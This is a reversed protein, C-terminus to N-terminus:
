LLRLRPRAALVLQLPQHSQLFTLLPHWAPFSKYSIHLTVPHDLCAMPVLCLLLFPIVIVTHLFLRDATRLILRWLRHHNVSPHHGTMSCFLDIELLRTNPISLGYRSGMGEDYVSDTPSFGLHDPWHIHFRCRSWKLVKERALWTSTGTRFWNEFTWKVAIHVHPEFDDICIHVWMMPNGRM